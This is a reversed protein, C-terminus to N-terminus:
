RHVPVPDVGPDCCPSPPRWARLWPSAGVASIRRGTRTFWNRSTCLFFCRRTQRPPNKPLQYQQRNSRAASQSRRARARMTGTTGTRPVRISKAIATATATATRGAVSTMATAQNGGPPETPRTLERRAQRNRNGGGPVPSRTFAWQPLVRRLQRHRARRPRRRRLHALQQPHLVSPRPTRRPRHWSLARLSAM